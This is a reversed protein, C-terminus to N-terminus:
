LNSYSACILLPARIYQPLFILTILSSFFSAKGIDRKEVVHPPMVLLMGMVMGIGWGSLVQWGYIVSPVAVDDPLTSFLALGVLEILSGIFILYIPPCRTKDAFINVLVSSLAILFNFPVLRLGAGFPRVGHM